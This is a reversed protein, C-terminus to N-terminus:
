KGENWYIKINTGKGTAVIDIKGDGNLDVAHVGDAEMDRDDLVKKEWKEGNEDLPHLVVVAHGGKGKEGRFGLVLSDIGAGSFDVPVVSHGVKYSELIV